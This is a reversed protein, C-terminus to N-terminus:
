TTKSQDVRVNCRRIRKGTGTFCAGSRTSPIESREIAAARGVIRSYSVSCALLAGPVGLQSPEDRRRRSRILLEQVSGLARVNTGSVPWSANLTQNGM